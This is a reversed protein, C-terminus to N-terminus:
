DGDSIWGLRARDSCGICLGSGGRRSGFLDVAMGGDGAIGFRDWEGLGVARAEMVAFHLAPVSSLDLCRAYLEAQGAFCIGRRQDIGGDYEADDDVCRTVHLVYNNQVGAAAIVNVEGALPGHVIPPKLRTLIFITM